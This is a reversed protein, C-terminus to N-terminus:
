QLITKVWIECNDDSDMFEDMNYIIINEIYIYLENNYLLIFLFYCEGEWRIINIASMIGEANIYLKSQGWDNLM